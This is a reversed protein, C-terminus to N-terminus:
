ALYWRNGTPSFYSGEKRIEQAIRSGDGQTHGYIHCGQAPYIPNGCRSYAPFKETDVFVWEEVDFDPDTEEECISMMQEEIMPWEEADCWIQNYLVASILNTPWTATVNM